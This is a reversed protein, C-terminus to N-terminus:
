IFNLKSLFVSRNLFLFFIILLGVLSYEEYCYADRIGSFFNIKHRSSYMSLVNLCFKYNNNLFGYRRIFLASSSIDSISILYLIASPRPPSNFSSFSKNLGNPLIDLPFHTLPMSFKSYFIINLFISVFILSCPVIYMGSRFYFNFIFFM